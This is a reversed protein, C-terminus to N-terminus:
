KLKCEQVQLIFEIKVKPLFRRNVLTNKWFHHCLCLEGITFSLFVYYFTAYEFLM